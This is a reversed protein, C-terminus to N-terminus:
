AYISFISALQVYPHIDTDAVVHVFLRMDTKVGDNGNRSAHEGCRQHTQHANTSVDPTSGFSPWMCVRESM